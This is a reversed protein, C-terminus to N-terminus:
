FVETAAPRCYWGFAVSAPALAGASVEVVRGTGALQALSAGGLYAAGLASVDLRLQPELDTRTCTASDPGGSLHWSGTNGGLVPDTIGLVVDVPAAYRRAALAAPVDTVRVWLGDYLKSGLRRPENVMQILPEDVAAFPWRMSRTLDVDLLLGVLAHYAVPNAAVLERVIVQGKPSHDWNNKVRWVAYGDVGSAGEHVTLRLPTAGERASPVDSLVKRWWADNRSSYGPRGLRVQEFLKAILDPADAPAVSRLRSPGPPAPQDVAVERDTEMSLRTTALGYGFRQYIRGESAWLAAIPEGRDRIEELQATIMRRLLGRRRHVARVGVMTVHGCPVTGGPVTMDRTFAAVEGAISGDPAIAYTTRDPEFVLREPEAADSDWTENFVEQLLLDTEAFEEATATRLTYEDETV